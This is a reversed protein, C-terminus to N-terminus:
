RKREKDTRLASWVTLVALIGGLVPIWEVIGMCAIWLMATICGLVHGINESWQWAVSNMETFKTEEVHRICFVTGGGLGSLWWLIYFWGSDSVYAVPVFCLLTALLIHGVCLYKKMSQKGFQKILPEVTLYTLWSLVFSAIVVVTSGEKVFSLYLMMYAYSFYHMQHLIMTRNGKLECCHREKPITQAVGYILCGFVAVMCVPLHSPYCLGSLFGVVRCLRKKWKAGHTDCASRISQVEASITVALTCLIIYSLRTEVFYVLGMILCGIVALGVKQNRRSLQLPVPVMNGLQYALGLGAIALPSLGSTIGWLLMGIEVSGSIMSFLYYM